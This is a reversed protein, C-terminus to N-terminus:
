SKEEEGLQRSIEKLAKRVGKEVATYHTLEDKVYIFAIDLGHAEKVSDICFAYKNLRYAERILRKVRNRKVASKLRKKPVSILVSVRNEHLGDTEVFIVRLPYSIFSRGHAFLHEIRKVGTVREKKKFTFRQGEDM